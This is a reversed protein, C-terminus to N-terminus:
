NEIRLKIQNHKIAYDYIDNGFNNLYEMKKQNYLTSRAEEIVMELPAIEGQNIYETINVLLLHISDQESYYGSKTIKLNSTETDVVNSLPKWYDTFLEYDIAYQLAYKEIIEINKNINKFDREIKDTKINNPLKIVAGKIIPEELLFLNQNENYFKTAEADTPVKVKENVMEQKYYHITLTRRYDDVM